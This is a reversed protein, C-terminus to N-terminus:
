KEKKLTVFLLRKTIETNTHENKLNKQINFLNEELNFYFELIEKKYRKGKRVQLFSLYLNSFNYIEPYFNGKRKM